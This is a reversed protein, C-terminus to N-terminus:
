RSVLAREEYAGNRALSLQFVATTDRPGAARILATCPLYRASKVRERSWLLATRASSGFNRASEGPASCGTLSVVFQAGPYREEIWKAAAPTRCGAPILALLLLILPVSNQTRGWALTAVNPM